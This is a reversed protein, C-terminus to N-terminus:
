ILNCFPLNKLSSGDGSGMTCKRALCLCAASAAHFIPSLVRTKLPQTPPLLPMRSRNEKLRGHSLRENVIVM